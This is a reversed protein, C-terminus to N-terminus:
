KKKHHGAGHAPAPPPAPPPAADTATPPAPTPPPPPPASPASGAASPVARAVAGFMAGLFADHDAKDAICPDLDAETKAAVICARAKASVAGCAATFGTRDSNSASPQLAQLKNTCAAPDDAKSCGIASITLAALTTLLLSARSRRPAARHNEQSGNKRKQLQIM